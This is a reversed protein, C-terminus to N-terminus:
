ALVAPGCAGPEKWCVQSGMPMRTLPVERLCSLERTGPTVEPSFDSPSDLLWFQWRGWVLNQSLGKGHQHKPAEGAMRCGLGGGVAEGERGRGKSEQGSLSRTMLTERIGIQGTGLARASRPKARFTAPSCPGRIGRCLWPPTGPKRCAEQCACLRAPGPRPVWVVWGM